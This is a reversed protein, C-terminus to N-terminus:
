VNWIRSRVTFFSKGAELLFFECAREKNAKTRGGVLLVRGDALSVLTHGFRPTPVNVDDIYAIRRCSLSGAVCCLRLSLLSSVPVATDNMCVLTTSSFIALHRIAM